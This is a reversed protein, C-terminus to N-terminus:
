PRDGQCSAHVVDGRSIIGLLTGGADVVPVRNVKRAAFLAAIEKITASAKVTIAPSTMLDKALQKKIPLPVCGKTRLCDAILTMFNQRGTLGMQTLFDKESIVGTVRSNEDVVPVGSIGRAGMVDAVEELPTEERVVVVDRTMIEAATVERSLRAVAQQYALLYIEKFDRPTIDLYGPIKQMAALIDAETLDISEPMDLAPGANKDIM